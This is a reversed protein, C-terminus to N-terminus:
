AVSLSKYVRFVMSKCDCKHAQHIQRTCMVAWEMYNELNDLRVSIPGELSRFSAIDEQQFM